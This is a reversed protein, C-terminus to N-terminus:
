GEGQQMLHAADLRTYVAGTPRLDSKMLAIETVRMRGLSGVEQAKVWAGMEARERGNAQDRVRALTLHPSFPRGEPPFGITGLERDVACQLRALSGSADEVGVWIVRPQRASFCGLGAVALEFPAVTAAARRMAERLEALQGASVDGLFKLTLHIGNPDVWRGLRALPARRLEGELEALAARLAADLEIAIFTRITEVGVGQCLSESGYRLGAPARGESV